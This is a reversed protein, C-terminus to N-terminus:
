RRSGPTEVSSSSLKELLASLEGQIRIVERAQELEATLRANEATLGRDPAAPTPKPGRPVSLGALAGRDRQRRWETLLSSHLNERRLIAGREGHEAREYEEVVALKYKATFTRRVAKEAVQPDPVEGPRVGVPDVRDATEESSM